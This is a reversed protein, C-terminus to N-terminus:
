NDNNHVHIIYINVLARNPGTATLLKTNVSISAIVTVTLSSVCQIIIICRTITHVTTYHAIIISRNSILSHM